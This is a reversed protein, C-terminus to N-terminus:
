ETIKVLMRFAAKGTHMIGDSKLKKECEVQTHEAFIEDNM